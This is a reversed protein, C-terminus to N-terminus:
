YVTDTRCAVVEQAALQPPASSCVRARVCWVALVFFSATLGWLWGCVGVSVAVVSLGETSVTM